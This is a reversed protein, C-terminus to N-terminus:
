QGGIAIWSSCRKHILWFIADASENFIAERLDINHTLKQEAQLRERLTDYLFEDYIDAIHIPNGDKDSNILRGSCIALVSRLAAETRQCKALDAQAQQYASEQQIAIAAILQQQERSQELQRTLQIREVAHHIAGQLVEPQSNIKLCIIKSVM